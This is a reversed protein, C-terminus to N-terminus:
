RGERRSARAAKGNELGNAYAEWCADRIIDATDEDVRQGGRMSALISIADKAVDAPGRKTRTM